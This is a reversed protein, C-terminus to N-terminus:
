RRLADIVIPVTGSVSWTSPASTWWLADQLSDPTLNVPEPSAELRVTWGLEDLVHVLSAIATPEAQVHASWVEVLVRRPVQIMTDAQEDYAMVPGQDLPRSWQRSNQPDIRGAIAWARSNQDLGNQLASLGAHAEADSRALVRILLRGEVLLSAAEDLNPEYARQDTWQRTAVEIARAAIRDADAADVPSPDASADAVSPQDPPAPVPDTLAISDDAPAAVRFSRVYLTGFAAIILVAAAAALTRIRTPSLRLRRHARGPEM